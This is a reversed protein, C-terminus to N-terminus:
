SSKESFGTRLMAGIYISQMTIPGEKFSITKASFANKCIQLVVLVDWFYTRESIATRGKGEIDCRLRNVLAIAVLELM